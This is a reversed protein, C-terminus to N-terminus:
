HATLHIAHPAERAPEILHLIKRAIIDKAFNDVLKNWSMFAIPIVQSISM